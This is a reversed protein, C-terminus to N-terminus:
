ITLYTARLLVTHLLLQGRVDSDIKKAVRVDLLKCLIPRLTIAWLGVVKITM